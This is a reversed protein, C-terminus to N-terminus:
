LSSLIMRAVLIVLVKIHEAMGALEMITSYRISLIAIRNAMM